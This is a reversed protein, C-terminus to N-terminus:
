ILQRQMYTLAPKVALGNGMKTFSVLVLHPRGQAIDSRSLGMVFQGLGMVFQQQVAEWWCGASSQLGATGLM